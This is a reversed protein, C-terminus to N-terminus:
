PNGDCNFTYVEPRSGTVLLTAFILVMALGTSQDQNVILLGGKDSRKCGGTCENM